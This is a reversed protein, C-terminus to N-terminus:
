PVPIDAVELVLEPSVVVIAECSPTGECSVAPVRVEADVRLTGSGAPSGQPLRVLLVGDVLRVQPPAPLAHAEDEYVFSVSLENEDLEDGSASWVLSLDIGPEIKIQPHDLTLTRPALLGEFDLAIRATDDSVEFHTSAGGLDEEALAKRFTPAGCVWGDKTPTEGGRNFLDMPRDDVKAEIDETIAACKGERAVLSLSVRPEDGRLGVEVRAGAPALDALTPESELLDFLGCGSTALGLTALFPFALFRPLIVRAPM